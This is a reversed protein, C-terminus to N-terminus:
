QPPHRTATSREAGASGRLVCGSPRPACKARFPRAGPLRGPKGCRASSSWVARRLGEGGGMQHADDGLLECLHRVAMTPLIARGEADGVRALEIALNLALLNIQLSVAETEAPNQPASSTQMNANDSGNGGYRHRRVPVKPTAASGAEPPPFAFIQRWAQGAFWARRAQTVM